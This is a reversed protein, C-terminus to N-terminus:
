QEGTHGFGSVGRSSVNLKHVPIWIARETRAIIMQAIRDGSQIVQPTNGLNVLIVKLEGRYDSDITGPSNMCTIGRNIALGSRSRVQAEFGEPLELYLGTPFLYRDMPQMTVPETLFARIDMGSAGATAYSPLDNDSLNVINVDIEQM